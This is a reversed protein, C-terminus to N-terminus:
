RNRRDRLFSLLALKAANLIQPDEESDLSQEFEVDFRVYSGNLPVININSDITSNMFVEAEVKRNNIPNYVVLGRRAESNDLIIDDDFKAQIDSHSTDIEPLTLQGFDEPRENIKLSEQM